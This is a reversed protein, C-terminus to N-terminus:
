VKPPAAPPSLKVRFAVTEEYRDDMFIDFHYHGAKALKVGNVGLIFNMSAGDLFYVNEASLEGTLEPIFEKGEPDVGCVKFSHKGDEGPAVKIRFVLTMTPHVWPMTMANIEDFVGAIILKGEGTVAAYDALLAVDIRM